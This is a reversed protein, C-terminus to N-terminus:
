ILKGLDCGTILVNFRKIDLYLRLIIDKTNLLTILIDDKFLIFVIIYKKYFCDIFLM